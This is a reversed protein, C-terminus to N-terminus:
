GLIRDLLAEATLIGVDEDVDWMELSLSKSGKGDRLESSNFETSISGAIARDRAAVEDFGFSLDEEINM